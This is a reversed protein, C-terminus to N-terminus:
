RTPPDAVSFGVRWSGDEAAQPQDPLPEIGTHGQETLRLTAIKLVDDLTFGPFDKVEVSEIAM